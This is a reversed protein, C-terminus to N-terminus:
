AFVVAGGAGVAMLTAVVAHFRWLRRSGALRDDLSRPRPPMKRVGLMTLGADLATFDAIRGDALDAFLGADFRLRLALYRELPMLALVLLVIVIADGRWAQVVWGFAIVLAAGLAMTGLTSSAGVWRAMVACRARDQANLGSELGSAASM